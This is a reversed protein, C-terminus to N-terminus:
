DDKLHCLVKLRYNDAEQANDGYSFLKEMNEKLFLCICLNFVVYIVSIAQTIAMMLIITILIIAVGLYSLISRNLGIKYSTERAGKAAVQYQFSNQSENINKENEIVANNFSKFYPIYLFREFAALVFTIAIYVVNLTNNLLLVVILFITLLLGNIANPFLTLAYYRYKETYQYIDMYTDNDREVEYLALADDM